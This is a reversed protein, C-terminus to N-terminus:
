QLLYDSFLNYYECLLPKEVVEETVWFDVSNISEYDIPDYQTKQKRKEKEKRFLKITKTALLLSPQIKAGKKKIVSEPRQPSKETKTEDRAVLSKVKTEDSPM